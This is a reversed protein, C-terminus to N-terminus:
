SQSKVSCKLLEKLRSKFRKGQEYWRPGIMKSILIKTNRSIITTKPLWSGAFHHIAYTDSTIDCKGITKPCFYFSPYIHVDNKLIQYSNDLKLNYNKVLYDTIRVTNPTLDLINNNPQVFKLEQYICLLEEILPHNKIAGMIATPVYNMSEFGSFFSDNLFKDISKIIELDTDVYIGGYKFLIWLRAYDSVFAYKKAEYAQRTYTNINIDFNSEDWRIIQYDPCYKQWSKMCKVALSPLPHKGFWCYHIVKPM